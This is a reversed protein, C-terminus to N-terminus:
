KKTDYSVKRKVGNKKIDGKEKINGEQKYNEIILLMEDTFTNVFVKKLKDNLTNNYDCEQIAAITEWRKEAFIKVWRETSDKCFCDRYGYSLEMALRKITNKNPEILGRM